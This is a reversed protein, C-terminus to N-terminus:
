SLPVRVCKDKILQKNMKDLIIKTHTRIDVYLIYLCPAATTSLFQTM